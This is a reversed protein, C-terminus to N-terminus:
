HQARTHTLLTQDPNAASLPAVQCGASQQPQAPPQSSIHAAASDSCQHLQQLNTGAANIHCKHKHHAVATTTHKQHETDQFAQSHAKTTKKMMMMMNGM